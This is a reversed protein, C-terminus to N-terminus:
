RECNTRDRSDSQDMDGNMRWPALEDFDEGVTRVADADCVCLCDRVCMSMIAFWCVIECKAQLLEATTEKM